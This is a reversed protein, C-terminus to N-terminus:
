IKGDRKYEKYCDYCLFMNKSEIHILNYNCKCKSCKAVDVKEM